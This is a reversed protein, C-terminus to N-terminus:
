RSVEHQRGLDDLFDKLLRTKGQELAQRGANLARVSADFEQQPGVGMLERYVDMSMLVYSGSSGEVRVPGGHENEVVAQIEPALRLSM